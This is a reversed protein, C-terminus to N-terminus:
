FGCVDSVPKDILFDSIISPIGWALLAVSIGIVAYLLTKHASKFKEADGGATVYKLAAILIYIVGIIIAVTYVWKLILCLKDLVQEVTGLPPNGGTQAFILTPIAALLLILFAKKM